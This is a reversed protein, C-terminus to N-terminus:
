GGLNYFPCHHQWCHVHYRHLTRSTSQMFTSYGQRSPVHHYMRGWIYQSHNRVTTQFVLPCSLWCFYDIPTAFKRRFRTNNPPSINWGAPHTLSSYPNSPPLIPNQERQLSSSEIPPASPTKILLYPIQFILHNSGRLYLHHLIMSLLLSIFVQKQLTMISTPFLQLISYTHGIHQFIILIYAISLPLNTMLSSM